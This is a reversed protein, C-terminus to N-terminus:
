MGKLRNQNNQAQTPAAMTGTHSNGFMMSRARDATMQTEVYQARSAKGMERMESATHMDDHIIDAAQFWLDDWSSSNTNNMVLGGEM